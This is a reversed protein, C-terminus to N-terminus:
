RSAAGKARQLGMLASIEGFHRNAHGLHSLVVAGVSSQRGYLDTGDTAFQEDDLARVKANAAGFAKAAYGLVTAKDPLPLRTSEEEDMGMGSQNDGLTDSALGWAEALGEAAWIQPQEDGLMRSLQSQAMDAWRSIHWLHFAISPSAPGASERFADKDLPEVTALLSDHARKLLYSAVVAASLPM